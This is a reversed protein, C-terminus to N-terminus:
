TAAIPEILSPDNNKVVGVRKSVPWYIIKESRYPALLSKLQPVDAPEEGLSAPRHEPAVVVPM